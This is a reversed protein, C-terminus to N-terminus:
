FQYGARLGVANGHSAFNLGDSGNKQNSQIIQVISFLGQGWDHRWTAAVQQTNIYFPQAKTHQDRAPNYFDQSLDFKTRSIRLSLLNAGNIRYASAIRTFFVLAVLFVFALRELLSIDITSNVSRTSFVTPNPVTVNSYPVALRAYSGGVFFGSM